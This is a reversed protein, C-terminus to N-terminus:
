QTVTLNGLLQLHITSTNKEKFGVHKSLVIKVGDDENEFSWLTLHDSPEIMNYDKNRILISAIDDQLQNYKEQALGDVDNSFDFEFICRFVQSKTDLISYEKTAGWLEKSLRYTYQANKRFPYTYERQIISEVEGNELKNLLQVFNNENDQSSETNPSPVFWSVLTFTGFFLIIATVIHRIQTRM